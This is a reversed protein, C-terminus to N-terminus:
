FWSSIQLLSGNFAVCEVNYETFSIVRNLDGNKINSEDSYYVYWTPNASDSFRKKMNKLINSLLKKM